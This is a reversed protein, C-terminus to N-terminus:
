VANCWYSQTCPNKMPFLFRTFTVNKNNCLQLPQQMELLFGSVELATEVGLRQLAMGVKKRNRMALHCFFKPRDTPSFFNFYSLEM